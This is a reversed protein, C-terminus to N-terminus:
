GANDWRRNWMRKIAVDTCGVDTEKDVGWKGGKTGNRDHHERGGERELGKVVRIWEDKNWGVVVKDDVVM